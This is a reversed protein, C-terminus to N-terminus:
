PEASAAAHCAGYGDARAVVRGSRVRVAAETGDSVATVGAAAAVAGEDDHVVRLRPWAPAPLAQRLCARLGALTLRALPGLEGPDGTVLVATVEGGPPAARVAEEVAGLRHLGLVAVVGDGTLPAPEGRLADVAPPPSWPEGAPRARPVFPLHPADWRDGLDLDALAACAAVIDFPEAFGPAADAMQSAGHLTTLATEAIRVRRRACDDGDLRELALGLVIANLKMLQAFPQRVRQDALVEPMLDMGLRAPGDGALPLRSVWARAFAALAERATAAGPTEGSAPSPRWGGDPGAEREALDALVSFYLARKGPFNSYVAGRTLGARDAIADVKADRFGREAFEDRAAALVRARNRAQLEARTLREM